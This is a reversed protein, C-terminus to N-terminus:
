PASEVGAFRQTNNAAEAIAKVFNTKFAGTPPSNNAWGHRSPDADRWGTLDGTADVDWLVLADPNNAKRFDIVPNFDIVTLPFDPDFLDPGFPPKDANVSLAPAIVWFPHEGIANIATNIGSALRNIDTSDPEGSALWGIRNEAGDRWAKMEANTAEIMARWWMFGNIELNRLVNSAGHVHIVGLDPRGTGIPTGSTDMIEKEAAVVHVINIPM